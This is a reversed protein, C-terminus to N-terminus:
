LEPFPKNGPVAGGAQRLLWNVLSHIWPRKSTSSDDNVENDRADNAVEVVGASTNSNRANM